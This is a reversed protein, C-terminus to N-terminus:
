TRVGGELGTQAPATHRDTQETQETQETQGTQGTTIHSHPALPTKPRRDDFGM